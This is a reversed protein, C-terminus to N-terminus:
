EKYKITWEDILEEDYQDLGVAIDPDGTLNNTTCANRIRRLYNVIYQQDESKYKEGRERMKLTDRECNEVAESVTEFLKDGKYIKVM